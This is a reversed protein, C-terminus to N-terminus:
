VIFLRVSIISKNGKDKKFIILAHDFTDARIYTHYVEGDQEYAIRYLNM